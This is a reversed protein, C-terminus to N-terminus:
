EARRKAELAEIAMELVTALPKGIEDAIKYIREITESSAMMNIQRNRGTMYKRRKRRPEKSVRPPQRSPFDNDEAIRELAENAVPRENKKPKPTFVPAALDAFPNVRQNM